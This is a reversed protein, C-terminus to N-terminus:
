LRLGRHPRIRYKEPDCYRRHTPDCGAGPGGHLFVLPIGDISGSEEYFIQHGDDTDLQYNENPKIEPYLPQM